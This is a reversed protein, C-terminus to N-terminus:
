KSQHFLLKDGKLLPINIFIMSYHLPEAIYQPDLGLVQTHIAVKM